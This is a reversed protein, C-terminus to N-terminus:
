SRAAAELLAAMREATQGPLDNLEMIDFRGVINHLRDFVAIGVGASQAEVRLAGAACWPVAHESEPDVIWGTKDQALARQCWAGPQRIRTAARLLSASVADLEPKSDFPM